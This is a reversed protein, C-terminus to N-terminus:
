SKVYDKVATTISHGMIKSMTKMKEVPYLNSLVIKRILSSSIKKGTSDFINNLFKTFDNRTLKKGSKHFLFWHEFKGEKFIKPLADYYKIFNNILDKNDKDDKIEFEIVGNAKETKYNNIYVKISKDKKNIVLYNISKDKDLKNYEENDYIKADSLDNRLPFLLHFEATLYKQFSLLDSYSTIPRWTLKEKLLNLYEKLEDMSLLNDKEKDTWEMKAKVRDIKSNLIDVKDSYPNIHKVDVGSALLYSIISSVKNKYTNMSIEQNDLMDFVKKHDKLIDVDFNNEEGGLDKFIKEINLCYIKITMPSANPNYDKIVKLIHEHLKKSQKPM